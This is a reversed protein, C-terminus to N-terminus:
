RCLLRRILGPPQEPAPEALRKITDLRADIRDVIELLEDTNDGDASM